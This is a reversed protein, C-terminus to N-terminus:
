SLPARDQEKLKKATTLTRELIRKFRKIRQKANDDQHYEPMMANYVDTSLYMSPGFKFDLVGKIVDEEKDVAM